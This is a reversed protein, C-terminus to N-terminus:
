PSQTWILINIIVILIIIIIIIMSGVYEFFIKICWLQLFM